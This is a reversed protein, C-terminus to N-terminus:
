WFWGSSRQNNYRRDYRNDHRYDNLQALRRNRWYNAQMVRRDRINNVHQRQWSLNPGRRYHNDNCSRRDAYASGAALSCTLIALLSLVVKKKM